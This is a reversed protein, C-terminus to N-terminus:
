LDKFREKTEESVEENMKMQERMQNKASGISHLSIATTIAAGIYRQEPSLSTKHGYDISMEIMAKRAIPNLIMTNTFGDLYFGKSCGLKEIINCSMALGQEVMPSSKSIRKKINKFMKELNKMDYHSLHEPIDNLIESFEQHHKYTLIHDILDSKKEDEDDEVLEEIIPIDPEEDNDINQKTKEKKNKIHDLNIDDDGIDITEPDEEKM